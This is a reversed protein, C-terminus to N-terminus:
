IERRSTVVKRWVVVILKPFTPSVNVFYFFSSQFLTEGVGTSLGMRCRCLLVTSIGPVFVCIVVRLVM